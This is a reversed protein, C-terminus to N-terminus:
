YMPSQLESTHEESRPVGESSCDVLGNSGTPEQYDHHRRVVKLRGPCSLLPLVPERLSEVGRVNTQDGDKVAIAVDRRHQTGLLPDIEPVQSLVTQYEIMQDPVKM